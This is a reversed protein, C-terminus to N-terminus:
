AAGPKGAAGEDPHEGSGRIEEVIREAEEPTLADDEEEDTEDDEDDAETNVGPTRTLRDYLGMLDRLSYRTRGYLLRRAFEDTLIRRSQAVAVEDIPPGSAWREVEARFEADDRLWHRITEKTVDAKKAAQPITLRGVVILELVRQKRGDNKRM